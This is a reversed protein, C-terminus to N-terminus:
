IFKQSSELPQTKEDFDNAVRKLDQNVFFSFVMGVILFVPAIINALFPWKLLLNTILIQIIGWIQGGANLLGGTMAEGVPYTLECGFDYSIPLVPIMVFGFVSCAAATIYLNGLLLSFAFATSVVVGGIYLSVLGRKYSRYKGVITAMVGAGILGFIILVAGFVSSDFSNFGYPETLQAVLTAIANFSGMGASFSIFLYIFNKNKLLTKMAEKFKERSEGGSKSPPTPPKGKFLLIDAVLVAGIVIAETVMLWGVETKGSSGDVFISPIIFGFAVGLSNAASGVTTAETRMDPRFWYTALKAPANLLFPQGIAALTQGILVWYFSDFAGIRCLAGFFTLTMGVLVGVRLGYEDLIYNSPFVVPIFAAMYVLSCIEVVFESVGYIDSLEETIPACTVWMLANSITSLSFLTLILWRSSYERYETEMM